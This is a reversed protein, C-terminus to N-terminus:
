QKPAPPPAKAALAKLKAIEAQSLGRAGPCHETDLFAAALKPMEPSGRALPGFELNELQWLLGRVVYPAGDAACDVEALTNAYIDLSPSESEHKAWDKAIEAEDEITINLADEIGQMATYKPDGELLREKILQKLGKFEATTWDCEEFKDPNPKASTAPQAVVTDNWVAERADARWVCAGEFFAGQLEAGRLSAGQLQAGGLSAGQLQVRFLYAGQLEAGRLSAGQLQAGGLSAGQLQARFLYAGQLKAGGLWAGQLQAGGLLAGQFQVFALSAGVFSAETFDANAAWAHDLKARNFIGGSFEIQRIDTDRLNAETLDRGKLVLVPEWRSEGAEKNKNNIRTLKDDDVLGEGHLDLTNRPTIPAIWANPQRRWMEGWLFWNTALYMREDPFTAVLVAYALAVISLVGAPMLRWSKKLWLRVGWGSRYGPWLTWVLGLDVALLGRHLWTIWESHYPLFKIQLYLLLAIPALALTILAMLSLLKANIGERELRGGVLLQVFVTNEIRMRFNERVEGDEPFARALSDEFSKATRALLVLNLLMYFHFVVFIIPALIYFGLLPLDIDLVPLKLPSELFLMRHTTTGAAIALYVMFTLFSFWLTQVREASHNLAAALAEAEKTDPGGDGTKLGTEERTGDLM